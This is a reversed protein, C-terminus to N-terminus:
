LSVLQPWDLRYSSKYNIFNPYFHTFKLAEFTLGAEFSLQTVSQSAYAGSLM